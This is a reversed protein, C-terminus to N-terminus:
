EGPLVADLLAIAYTGGETSEANHVDLESLSALSQGGDGFCDRGPESVEQGVLRRLAM